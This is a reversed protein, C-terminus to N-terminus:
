KQSAYIGQRRAFVQRGAIRNAYRGATAGIYATGNEYGEVSDYGLVVDGLKGNRDPVKISVTTAGFDTIAVEMGSKNSLTYLHAERGDRTKGFSRMKVGPSQSDKAARGNLSATLGMLLLVCMGIRM